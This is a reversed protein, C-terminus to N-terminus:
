QLSLRMAQGISTELPGSAQTIFDLLISGNGETQVFADLAPLASSVFKSSASLTGDSVLRNLGHYFDVAAALKWGKPYRPGIAITAHNLWEPAYMPALQKLVAAPLNAPLSYDEDSRAYVTTFGPLYSSQIHFAGLSQGPAISAGSPHRWAFLAIPSMSLAGPPATADLPELVGNWTAHNAQIVADTANVAISWVKVGKSSQGDNQLLFTYDYTGDSNATVQTTVGQAVQDLREIQLTSRAGALSGSALGAPYSLTVQRINPGLFVFQPSGNPVTSGSAFTPIPSLGVAAPQQAPVNSTSFVAASILAILRM